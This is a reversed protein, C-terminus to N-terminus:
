RKTQSRVQYAATRNASIHCNIKGFRILVTEGEAVEMVPLRDDLEVAEGVVTTIADDEDAVIEADGDEVEVDWVDVNLEVDLELVLLVLLVLVDVVKFGLETELPLLLSEEDVV